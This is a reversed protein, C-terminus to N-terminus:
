KFPFRFIVSLLMASLFVVVLIGPSYLDDYPGADRDRIKTARWFYLYLAYLAFLVSVTIFGFGSYTAKKDGLEMMATGFGGIFISFHLWSLFTRENAFFVKPEVRVPVAIRKNEINIPILSHKSSPSSKVELPVEVMVDGNWKKRMQPPTYFSDKRIEADMQPIWYPIDQITPYLIAMGHMFKSFKHVHEVLHSQIVNEIWKPKSEDICKTKVELIAYPFHVIENKQLYDFPYDCDVDYRRWKMPLPNRKLDYDTSEKIMCLDTDLSIRVESNNPLQFASRRYFTRVAPRLKKKIISEQIEVYLRYTENKNENIKEVEKWVNKGNIYDNVCREPIKFRLKKSECGTWGDIHMKREVFVHDPINVSYWRIRICESEHLKRLRTNYIQFDSNDFYVSSITSDHSKYNWDSFPDRKCYPTKTDSFVYIPLNKLIQCKLPIVNEKHVWYKNTKRVFHTGSEKKEKKKKKESKLMLKSNKYILDNINEIEEKFFENISETKFEDKYKELFNTKFKKDYSKILRKFGVMNVKIFTSLKSLSDSIKKIENKLESKKIKKNKRSKDLDEYTENLNNLKLISYEHVRKIETNINKILDDKQDETTNHIKEILNNYELYGDEFEEYKHKKLYKSFKM